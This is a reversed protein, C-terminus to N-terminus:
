VRDEGVGDMDREEFTGSGLSTEGIYDSFGLADVALVIAVGLVEM